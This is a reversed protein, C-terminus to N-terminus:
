SEQGKQPWNRYFTQKALFDLARKHDFYFNLIVLGLVLIIGGVLLREILNFSNYQQKLELERQELLREKDVLALEKNKLQSVTRNIPNEKISASAGINVTGAEVRGIFLEILYEKEESTKVIRLEQGLKILPDTRSKLSTQWDPLFFIFALVFIVLAVFGLTAAPHSIKQM